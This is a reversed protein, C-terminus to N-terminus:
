ENRGDSLFLPIQQATDQSGKLWEVRWEAIRPKKIHKYQGPSPEDIHEKQYVLVLPKEARPTKKSFANAAKYTPFAKFYQETNKGDPRVWVRYELVDDYFYGGGSPTYADYTGVKGPDKADPYKRFISM